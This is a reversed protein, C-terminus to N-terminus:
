RAAGGTARPILAADAEALHAPNVGTIAVHIGEGLFAAAIARGIGSGAGTVLAVRDAMADPAFTPRARAAPDLPERDPPAAPTTM